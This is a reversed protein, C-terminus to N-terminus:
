LIVLYVMTANRKPPSQYYVIGLKHGCAINAMKDAYANALRYVHRIQVQWDWDLMEQISKLLLRNTAPQGDRNQIFDMAQQSDMEIEVQKFGYDQALRM